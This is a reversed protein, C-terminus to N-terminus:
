RSDQLIRDALNVNLARIATIYAKAQRLTVLSEEAAKASNRLAQAARKMGARDLTEVNQLDVAINSETVSIDFSHDTGDPYRYLKLGNYTTQNPNVFFATLAQKIATKRSAAITIYRFEADVTQTVLTGINQRYRTEIEARSVQAATGAGGNVISQLRVELRNLAARNGPELVRLVAMDMSVRMGLALAANKLGSRYRDAGSVTNGLRANLYRDGNASGYWYNQPLLTLWENETFGIFTFWPSYDAADLLRVTGDGCAAAIWKGDPSYLAAYVGGSFGDIDRVRMGNSADYIRVQNGQGAILRNGDASFMSYYVPIGREGIGAKVTGSAIDWLAFAADVSASAITSGDPNFAV